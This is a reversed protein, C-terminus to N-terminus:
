FPASGCLSDRGGDQPETDTKANSAVLRWHTGHPVFAPQVRVAHSRAPSASVGM